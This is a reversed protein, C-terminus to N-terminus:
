RDEVTKKMNEAHWGVLNSAVQLFSAVGGVALFLIPYWAFPTLYYFFTVFLAFWMGVCWPCSLLDAITRRPGGVPKSRIVAGDGTVESTTTIDLFLDRGWQMIKDYVFLRTLRFTALSLLVFDFVSIGVPPTGVVVYLIVVANIFLALFLLTFTFNWFHQDSHM